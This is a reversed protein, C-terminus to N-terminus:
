YGEEEKALAAEYQSDILGDHNKNDAAELFYIYAAHARQKLTQWQNSLGRLHRAPFLRNHFARSLANLGSETFYM